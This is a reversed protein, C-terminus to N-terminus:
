QQADEYLKMLAPKFHEVKAFDGIKVRMYDFAVIAVQDLDDSVMVPIKQYRQSFHTLLIRRAGMKRGIALAESTTSHKKAYADGALEDDFTAEHILLTAGRGIRAFDYSPRCDGSYAVKFGKPFNFVVALAGTCHEVRCAEISSLGYAQTEEPSFEKYLENKPSGLGICDLRDYGYDEVESYERLWHLMGDHSAVILKNDKTLENDKTAENWASIMSATGLHHDAHLHSIWIARLDKLVDPLEKSGFTRKLQGLTNEGCDFLYSGYGPVRLLTGSVNRYKSPAASGTGLSIVEADKCLLGKQLEDLKALYDLSTVTKQAEIAIKLVEADAAEVVGATDLYPVIKDDHIEFIPELQVHKGIRAIEYPLNTDNPRGEVHNSHIPVPFRESDILRLKIAQTASSELALYNSCIDTSSVIHKLESHSKMFSQVRPDDVVGPGLIWIVAGVGAMVKKAAWEERTIAAQIYSREPLDMIVFGGGEKGPGMVQEPQIITGDDTAVSEGSTLARFAPGPKVGLKIAAKPDFKGRQPLLKVVYSLSTHAPKTPPLDEILAGPWPVRVLVDVDPMEKDKDWPPGEYKQMKGDDNRVFIQAPMVIESLKRKVLADMSWDSDFMSTLVSKRLQDHQDLEDATFEETANTTPSADNAFDDHSRKRPPKTATEVDPELVMAWVQVFQDKWTPEHDPSLKTNRARYEQTRIPYGKRFVFRRATALTHTLNEGGHINLWRKEVLDKGNQTPKIRLQEEKAANVGDALTLITGIVGGTTSWKTPGTLFIESLKNLGVKRQVAARQTGEAINGFLYRKADLHLLITTGPTDATRTTVFTIGCKMRHFFRHNGPMWSEGVSNISNENQKKFAISYDNFNAKLTPGPLVRDLDISSRNNSRSRGPWQQPYSNLGPPNKNRLLTRVQDAKIIKAKSSPVKKLHPIFEFM